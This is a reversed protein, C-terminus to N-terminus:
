KVRGQEKTRMTVPVVVRGPVHPPLRPAVRPEDAERMITVDMYNCTREQNQGERQIM